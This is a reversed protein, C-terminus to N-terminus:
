VIKLDGFLGLLMAFMFKEYRPMTRQGGVWNQVTRLPIMFRAAFKTQSMGSAKVLDAYTAEIKENLLESLKVDYEQCIKALIEINPSNDGALWHSVASKSVGVKEALDIAKIGKAKLLQNLNEALTGRVDKM